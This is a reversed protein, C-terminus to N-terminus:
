VSEGSQTDDASPPTVVSKVTQPHASVSALIGPALGSLTERKRFASTM